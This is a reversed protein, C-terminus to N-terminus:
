LTPKVVSVVILKSLDVAPTLIAQQFPKYAENEVVTVKGILLGRPVNGELGSTVVTDNVLIVENRPIYVMRLSLGYGGEVVGLSREQNLLTAAIKSQSDNLLRVVATTKDVKVVKGVLAGEDAVVPYGLILGDDAGQDIIINNGNNDLTKGVVRATLLTLGSHDHFNLQKKLANNEDELIKVKAAYIDKDLSNKKYNNYAVFFDKPTNYFEYSEEVPVIVTQMSRFFPVFLSRVGFEFFNLAGFFHLILLIIVTVGAYWFTRYSRQWQM